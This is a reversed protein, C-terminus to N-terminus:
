DLNLDDPSYYADNLLVSQLVIDGLVLEEILQGAIIYRREDLAPRRRVHSYCGKLIDCPARQAFINHIFNRRENQHDWFSQECKFDKYQNKLVKRVNQPAPIWFRNYPRLKFPYFDEVKNVIPDIDDWNEHNLVHSGNNVVFFFDIFPYNWAESGAKPSSLSYIKGVQYCKKSTSVGKGCSLTNSPPIDESLKDKSYMNIGDVEHFSHVGYKSNFEETRFLARLKNVDKLDIFLDLDDDWPIIDHFLYSGLLMGQSMVFGIDHLNLMNLFSELLDMTESQSKRSVARVLWTHSNRLKKDFNVLKEGPKIAHTNDKSINRHLRHIHPEVDFPQGYQDFCEPDPKMAFQNYNSDNFFILLTLINLLLIIALIALVRIHFTVIIM